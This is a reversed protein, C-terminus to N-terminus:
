LADSLIHCTNQLCRKYIMIAVAPDFEELNAQIPHNTGVSEVINELRM